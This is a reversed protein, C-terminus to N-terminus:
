GPSGTRPKLIELNRSSEARQLATGGLEIGNDRAIRYIDQHSRDLLESAKGISLKGEGVLGVTTPSDDEISISLEDLAQRVGVADKLVYYARTGSRSTDVKEIIGRSSLPRLSPMKHGSYDLVWKGAFEQGALGFKYCVAVTSLWEPHENALTIVADHSSEM